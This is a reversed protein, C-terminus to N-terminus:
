FRDIRQYDVEVIDLKLAIFDYRSSNKRRVEIQNLYEISDYGNRLLIKKFDNVDKRIEDDEDYSFFNQLHSYLTLDSEKNYYEKSSLDDFNFGFDHGKEMLYKTIGLVLEHETLKLTKKMHLYVTLIQGRNKPYTKTFFEAVKRDTTFHFGLMALYDKTNFALKRPDFKQFWNHSGHYVTVDRQKDITKSNPFLEHIQFKTIM